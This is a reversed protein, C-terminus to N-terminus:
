EYSNLLNDIKSERRYSNLKDLIYDSLEVNSRSYERASLRRGIFSLVEKDFSYLTDFSVTIDKGCEIFYNFIQSRHERFISEWIHLPLVVDSSIRVTFFNQFDFLYQNLTYLSDKNM